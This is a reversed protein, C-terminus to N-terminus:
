LIDLINETPRGIVAKGNNIIIPREILKPHEIMAKIWAAESLQKGKFKDKFIAENKRVLTEAKIGLMNLVLELEEKTPPVEIYSITEFELNKDNLLAVACRSKSCRNNHWIKM